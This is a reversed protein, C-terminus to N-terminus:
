EGLHIEGHEHARRVSVIPQARQLGKVLLDVRRLQSREVVRPIMRVVSNVDDDAINVSWRGNTEDVLVKTRDRRRLQGCASGYVKRRQARLRDGNIAILWIIDHGQRISEWTIAALIVCGSLNEFGDQRALAGVEIGQDCRTLRQLRAELIEVRM